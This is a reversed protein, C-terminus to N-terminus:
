LKWKLDILFRIQNDNEPTIDRRLHYSKIGVQVPIEYDMFFDDGIHVVEDPEAKLVKLVKQYTKPTQKTLNFRSPASFIHSFYDKIGEAELKFNLFKEESNSVIILEYKDKLYELIEKTDKYLFVYKKMEDILKKWGKLELRNFWYEIDTWSDIREIYLAKYYESFVSKKAEDLSLNNKNAYLKPIEEHWVKKDFSDDALTGDLDFSVFRIM